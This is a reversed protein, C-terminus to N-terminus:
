VGRQKLVAIIIVTLQKLYHRKELARYGQQGSLSFIEIVPIGALNAIEDPLSIFPINDRALLLNGFTTRGAGRM